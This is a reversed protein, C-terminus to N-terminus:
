VTERKGWSTKKDPPVKVQIKNINIQIKVMTNSQTFHSTDLCINIAPNNLKNTIIKMM